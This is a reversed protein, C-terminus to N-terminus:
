RAGGALTNGHAITVQGALRGNNATSTAENAMQAAVIDIGRLWISPAIGMLLFLVVMPWLTVHERADLDWGVVSAPRPGIDTYFVRQIM